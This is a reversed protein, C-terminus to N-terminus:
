AYGQFERLRLKGVDLIPIIKNKLVSYDTTIQKPCLPYERFM